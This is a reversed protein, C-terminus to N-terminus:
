RRRDASDGPALYFELLARVATRMRDLRSSPGPDDGPRDPHRLRHLAKVLGERLDIPPPWPWWQRARLARRYGPDLTGASLHLFLRRAGPDGPLPSEGPPPHRLHDLLSEVARGWRPASPGPVWATWRAAAGDDRLCALDTVWRWPPYRDPRLGHDLLGHVVLHAALVDPAPVRTDLGGIRVAETRGAPGLDEFRLPRDPDEPPSCGPLHLHIEVPIGAPHGLPDLHHRSLSRGIRRFGAAEMRAALRRAAAAPVLVDVDALPRGCPPARGSLHLATGKLFVLPIDQQRAIRTVLGATFLARLAEEAHAQRYRRALATGAPDLLDRLDPRALRTAIAPWLGASRLLADLRDWPVPPPGPRFPGTAFSAELAWLFGPPFAPRPPHNPFPLDM